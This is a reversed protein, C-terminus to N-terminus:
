REGRRVVELNKYLINWFWSQVSMLLIRLRDVLSIHDYVKELVYASGDDTKFEAYQSVDDKWRLRVVRLENSLVRWQVDFLMWKGWFRCTNKVLFLVPARRLLYVKEKMM